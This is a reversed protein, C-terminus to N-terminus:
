MGNFIDMIGGFQSTDIHNADMNKALRIMDGVKMDDGLLRALVFGKSDESGFFIVEDIAEEEGKFYLRMNGNDSNAKMLEEYDDSALISMLRAREGQFSLNSNDKLPYAMINIKRISKLIEQQDQDLLESNDGILSMPVDVLIFDSNEQNDVYYRQLSQQDSCSILTFLVTLILSSVTVIKRM